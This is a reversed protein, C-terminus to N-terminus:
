STELTKADIRRRLLNFLGGAHVMALLFDPVPDCALRQGDNTVVALAGPAALDLRVSQGETLREAAPCTLLLLGLNFANRFFLGSFSPAIVAAVGLHRLAGAAQERSSGIGFGPGGAIADGPQVQRAFDPRVAELCHPAIGEIGLKMYAGPALLDTDIDAGLRWIRHAGAASRTM